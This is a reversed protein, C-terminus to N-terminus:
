QPLQVVAQAALWLQLVPLQVQGLLPVSQLPAQTLVCVLLVLQPVQPVVQLPPLVQWLPV